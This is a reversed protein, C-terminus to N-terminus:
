VNPRPRGFVLCFPHGAPDAFVRFGIEEAGLLRRATQPDPCDSVTKELRGIM